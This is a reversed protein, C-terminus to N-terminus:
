VLVNATQKCSAGARFTFCNELRLRSPSNGRALGPLGAHLHFCYRQSLSGRGQDISTGDWGKAKQRTTVDSVEGALFQLHATEAGGKEKENQKTPSILHAPPAEDQGSCFINIKLGPLRRRGPLQQPSRRGPEPYTKLRQYKGGFLDTLRSSLNTRLQAGFAEDTGPHLLRHAANGKERLKLRRM